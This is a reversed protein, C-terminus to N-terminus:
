YRKIFIYKFACRSKKNREMYYLYFCVHQRWASYMSIPIICISVRLCVYVCLFVAWTREGLPPEDLASGGTFSLQILQSWACLLFCFLKRPKNIWVSVQYGYKLLDRINLQVWPAPRAQSIVGAGWCHRPTSAVGERLLTNQSPCAWAAHQSQRVSNWFDVQTVGGM